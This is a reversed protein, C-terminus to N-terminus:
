HQQHVSVEMGCHPCVTTQKQRTRRIEDAFGSALIGAPLAFMGIGLVSVMAGVLRGLPTIPYIDGYGVTTLTAVGWWMSGPISSFMEPQAENEVFYMLSSAVILLILGTFICVFLEERKNRVVNGLIRISESYRGLKLVRLLRILRFARMVRLDVPFLLPLYFPLIALLDIIALPTVAFRLRGKIPHAFQPDATISWVRLVYEISFILTSVIDFTRLWPAYRTEFSQVTELMVAAINLCVLTMLFIDFFRSAHDDGTAVEVIEYVRRKLQMLTAKPQTLRRHLFDRKFHM